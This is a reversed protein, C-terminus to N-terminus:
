KGSVEWASDEEDDDSISFEDTEDFVRLKEKQANKEERAIEERTTQMIGNIYRIFFKMNVLVRCTSNLNKTCSM